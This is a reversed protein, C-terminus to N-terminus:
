SVRQYRGEGLSQVTISNAVDKLLQGFAGKVQKVPHTDTVRGLEFYPISPDQHHLHHGNFFNLFLARDVWHPITVQRVQANAERLDFGDDDFYHVDEGVHPFTALLFMGPFLAMPVGVLWLGVPSLLSLTIYSCGFCGALLLHLQNKRHRPASLFQKLRQSFAIFVFFIAVFGYAGLHQKIWLAVRVASCPAAKGEGDKELHHVFRHHEMHRRKFGYFNLCLVSSLVVGLLENHHRRPFLSNHTAEHIFLGLSLLLLLTTVLYLGYAAVRVPLPWATTHSGLAVLLALVALRCLIDASVLIPRKQKTFTASTKM